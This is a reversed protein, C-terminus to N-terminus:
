RSPKKIEMNLIENSEAHCSGAQSLIQITHETTAAFKRLCGDRDEATTCLSSDVPAIATVKCNPPRQTTVQVAIPVIASPSSM